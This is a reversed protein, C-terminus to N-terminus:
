SSGAGRLQEGGEDTEREDEGYDDLVVGEEAVAFWLLDRALLDVLKRARPGEVVVVTRLADREVRRGVDDELQRRREAHAVRKLRARLAGILALLGDRKAHLQM